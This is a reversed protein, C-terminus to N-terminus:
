PAIPLGNCLIVAPKKGELGNPIYLKGGIHFTGRADVDRFLLGM